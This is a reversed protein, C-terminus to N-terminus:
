GPDEAPSSSFRTLGAVAGPQVLPGQRSDHMARAQQSEARLETTALAAVQHKSRGETSGETVPERIHHQWM